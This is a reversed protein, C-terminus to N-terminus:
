AIDDKSFDVPCPFIIEGSSCDLSLCYQLLRLQYCLLEKNIHCTPLMELPLTSGFHFCVLMLQRKHTLEGIPFANNWSRCTGDVLISMVAITTTCLFVTSGEEQRPACPKKDSAYEHIYEYHTSFGIKTKKYAINGMFLRSTSTHIVYCAWLNVISVNVGPGNRFYTDSDM